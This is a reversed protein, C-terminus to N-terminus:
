DRCCRRRDAPGALPYTMTEGTRRGQQSMNVHQLRLTFSEVVEYLLELRSPLRIM